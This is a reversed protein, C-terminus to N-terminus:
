KPLAEASPKDPQLTNPNAPANPNVGFDWVYLNMEQPDLMEVVAYEGAALDQAPTLKV